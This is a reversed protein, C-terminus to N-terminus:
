YCALKMLLNLLCLYEPINKEKHLLAYIIVIIFREFDSEIKANNKDIGTKIKGEQWFFPQTSESAM